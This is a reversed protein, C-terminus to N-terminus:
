IPVLSALPSIEFSIQRNTCLCGFARQTCPRSRKDLMLSWYDLPCKTSLEPIFYPHQEALFYNVNQLVIWINWKINQKGCIVQRHDIFSEKWFKAPLVSNNIFGLPKFVWGTYSFNWDNLERKLCYIAYSYLKRKVNM